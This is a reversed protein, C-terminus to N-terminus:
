GEDSQRPDSDRPDRSEAPAASSGPSEISQAELSGAYARIQELKRRADVEGRMYDAVEDQLLRNEKALQALQSRLSDKQQGLMQIEKKLAELEETQKSNAAM